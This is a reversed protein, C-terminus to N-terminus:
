CSKTHSERKQRVIENGGSVMDVGVYVPRYKMTDRPMASTM